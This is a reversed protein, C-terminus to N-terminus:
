RQMSSGDSGPISSTGVERGVVSASSQSAAADSPPGILFDALGVPLLLLGAAFLTCFRAMNCLSALSWIGAGLLLAGLLLIRRRRRRAERQGPSHLAKLKELDIKRAGSWSEQPQTECSAPVILRRIRKEESAQEGVIGCHQVLRSYCQMM